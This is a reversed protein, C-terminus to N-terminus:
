AGWTTTREEVNEVPYDKKFGSFQVNTKSGELPEEKALGRVRLAETKEWEAWRKRKEKLGLM